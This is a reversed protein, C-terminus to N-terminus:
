DKAVQISKKATDICHTFVFIALATSTPNRFRNQLRLTERFYAFLKNMSFAAKTHIILQFGYKDEFTKLFIM